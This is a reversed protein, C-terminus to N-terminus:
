AARRPEDPTVPFDTPRWWVKELRRAILVCGITALLCCVFFHWSVAPIQRTHFASGWQYISAGLYSAVPVIWWPMRGLISHVLGVTFGAVAAPLFGPIYSLPIFLFAGLFEFKGVGGALAYFGAAVYLLSGIPPGALIFLLTTGLLRSIRDIPKARFPIPATESM